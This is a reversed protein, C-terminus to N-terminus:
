KPKLSSTYEYSIDFYAKLDATNELLTQPVEVYEKMVAGYRVVPDTGYQEVFAQREGAPLRLALRGDDMLFSFMHGNVSTYPIKSGKRKIQPYGAVLKEFLALNAPFPDDTDM